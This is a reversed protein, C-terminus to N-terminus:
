FNLVVFSKITIPLIFSYFLCLVFLIAVLVLLWMFYNNEKFSVMFKLKYKSQLKAREAGVVLIMTMVFFNALNVPLIFLIANLIGALGYTSIVAASSLVILASQYGLFIFGIISTYKTLTLVFIILVCLLINILRSYFISTYEANGTIYSFMNRDASSLLASYRYGTVSIYIGVAIGLLAFITALVYYFANSKFHEKVQYFDFGQRSM